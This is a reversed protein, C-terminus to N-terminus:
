ASFLSVVWATVPAPFHDPMFVFLFLNIVVIKILVATCVLKAIILPTAKLRGQLIRVVPFDWKGDKIFM